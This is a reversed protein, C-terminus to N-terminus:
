AITATLTGNNVATSYIKLTRTNGTTNQPGQLVAGNTAYESFHLQCQIKNLAQKWVLAGQQHPCVAETAVFSSSTDGTAIRFFLVGNATAQDGVALLQSGLNVSATSGGGGGGGPPNPNPEPTGTNGKGGCAQFCSGTCVLALGFGLSKIFEDREM